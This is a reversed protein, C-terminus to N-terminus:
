PKAPKSPGTPAPTAAAAPAPVPENEVFRRRMREGFPIERLLITTFRKERQVGASKWSMEVDVKYELPRGNVNLRPDPNPTAQASYVVDFVGHLARDKFPVPEGAEGDKVPFLTEELDAVVAEAVAAASTRLQATRGLAAGFTLLGLIATMGFLLIGMAILIELITFGARAAQRKRQRARGVSLIKM